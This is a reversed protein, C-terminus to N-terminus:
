KNKGENESKESIDSLKWLSKNQEANRILVTVIM